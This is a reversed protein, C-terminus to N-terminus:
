LFTIMGFPMRDGVYACIEGNGEVVYYTPYHEINFRNCIEGSEESFLRKM